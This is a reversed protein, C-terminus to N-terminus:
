AKAHQIVQEFVAPWPAFERHGSLYRDHWVSVFTGQVARVADSVGNMARVVEGPGLGMREILASDMVHFPWLMLATEEEREIDYWPFPTCTSVRFGARDTFGLSHEEAIGARVAWRLTHPLRMRLFHQRSARLPGIGSTFNRLEEDARDPMASTAYSPHLGMDIGKASLDAIRRKVSAPWHAPPVAHDHTGNGRLLLFSRAGDMDARAAVVRELASLYPDQRFGWRVLWREAAAGPHLRLLDKLTAGVARPLSRGAYRLVNDMDVTVTHAYRRQAPPLAPWRERLRRHLDLAWRDLWPTDALGARVTFLAASPVRDHADREARRLEDVLALLFFAAAFVDSQGGVPFLVKMGAQEVVPPDGSPPAELAGSWPVHLAGEVAATGYLLKPGDAYRFANMDAVSRVPVGLMRELVHRVIYAARPSPHEVHVLLM